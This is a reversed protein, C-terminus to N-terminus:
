SACQPRTALFDNLAAILRDLQAELAAVAAPAAAVDGSKGITEVLRAAAFAEPACFNAIMGKLTHASRELAAADGSADASKIEALLRVIPPEKDLRHLHKAAVARAALPLALLLMLRQAITM